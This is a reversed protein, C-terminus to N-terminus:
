ILDDHPLTLFARVVDPSFADGALRTIEAVAEPVSWANKYPREHTLADFVDAVSVIAAEVPIQEGALQRPYGKGDWREHHSGAIREAMQVVESNGGALLAAGAAAHTKMVEFEADTLKGPKLLILDAIAIKGVDHLPAAQRILDTQYDSLGIARALLASTIGVRQTHRGTDDDRFEAARALRILIEMQSQGLEATRERVRQELMQNALETAANSERLARETDVRFTVDKQLGVFSLLTGNANFVPNVILENIFRTGDKKYNVLVGVFGRREAISVRLEKILGSDTEPGQLFRCNFGIVEEKEYGTMSYFAPNAFIIPNDPVSPNTIVVGSTLSNVAVALPGSYRNMNRSLSGDAVEYHDPTNPPVPATM